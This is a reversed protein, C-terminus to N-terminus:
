LCLVSGCPTRLWASYSSSCLIHQLMSQLVYIQTIQVSGKVVFCVLEYSRKHRKKWYVIGAQSGFVTIQVATDPTVRIGRPWFGSALRALRAKHCDPALRWKCLLCSEQLGAICLVFFPEKAHFMTNLVSFMKRYIDSEVKSCKKGDQDSLINALDSYVSLCLFLM